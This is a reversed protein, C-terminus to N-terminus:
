SKLWHAKKENTSFNPFLQQLGDKCPGAARARDTFATDETPRSLWFALFGRNFSVTGVQGLGKKQERRSFIGPRLEDKSKCPGSPDM